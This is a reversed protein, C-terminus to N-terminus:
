NIKTCIMDKSTFQTRDFDVIKDTDELEKNIGNWDFFDYSIDDNLNKGTNCLLEKEAYGIPQNYELQFYFDTKFYECLNEAYASGSFIIIKDNNTRSFSASNIKESNQLCLLKDELITTERITIVKPDIIDEKIPENIKWYFNYATVEKNYKGRGLPKSELGIIKFLNNLSENNDKLITSMKKSDKWYFNGNTILFNYIYINNDHSYFGRLVFELALATIGVQKLRNANQQFWSWSSFVDHKGNTGVTDSFVIVDNTEVKKELYEFPDKDIPKNDDKNYIKLTVQKPTDRTNKLIYRYQSM